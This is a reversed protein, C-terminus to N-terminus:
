KTHIEGIVDKLVTVVDRTGKNGGLDPTLIRRDEILIDIARELVFAQRSLVEDSYKKSLYELMMKAAT